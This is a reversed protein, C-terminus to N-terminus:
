RVISNQGVSVNGTAGINTRHPLHSISASTGATNGIIDTARELIAGASAAVNSASKGGSIVGRMFQYPATGSIATGILPVNSVTDLAGGVAGTIRQGARGAASLIKGGVRAAGVIRQGVRRLFGMVKYM